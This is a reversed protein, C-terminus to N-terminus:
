DGIKNFYNTKNSLETLLDDVAFQAIQETFIARFHQEKDFTFSFENFIM